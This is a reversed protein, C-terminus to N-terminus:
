PREGGANKSAARGLGLAMLVVTLSSTPMLFAAILPSMLGALAMSSAAVNYSLSVMLCKKM